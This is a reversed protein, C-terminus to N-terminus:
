SPSRTNRAPKTAPLSSWTATCRRATGARSSSPSLTASHSRRSARTMSIRSNLRGATGAWLTFSRPRSLLIARSSSGHDPWRFTASTGAAPSRRSTGAPSTSRSCRMNAWTMPRPTSREAMPRSCWGAPAEIGIRIWRACTAPPSTLSWSRLGTPKLGPRKMAEYYLKKGDRSPLPFADWAPNNATLNRPAASADTPVAYVDFNTSWPESQGPIRVGFYLTAGDPSFAYEEDGGFPKSPVDGSIEQTLRQPEQALSGEANLEAIFLQTRRGDAWSDWHRIFLSQFDVGTAKSANREELRKQTCALDKCDVFVELALALHVGDPAVAFNGVDLPLRTVQRAEGLGDGLRWVQDSGSRDSLFYLHKGDPAWRPSSANSGAATIREPRSEKAGLALRWLSRMGKNAEWNTERVTFVVSQGDPALQPDSVRDLMVLDKATFARSGADAAVAIGAVCLLAALATINRLTKM